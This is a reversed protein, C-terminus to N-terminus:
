AKLKFHGIRCDCLIVYRGGGPDVEKVSEPDIQPDYNPIWEADEWRHLQGCECLVFGRSDSPYKIWRTLNATSRPKNALMGSGEFFEGNPLRRMEEGLKARLNSLQSLQAVFGIANFVAFAYLVRQHERLGVALSAIAAILALWVSSWVIQISHRLKAEAAASWPIESSAATQHTGIRPHKM